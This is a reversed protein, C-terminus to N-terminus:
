QTFASIVSVQRATETKFDWVRFTVKLALIPTQLPTPNSLTTGPTAWGTYDYTTDNNAAWTDFVIPFSTGAPSPPFNPNNGPTATAPYGSFFLSYVSSLDMFDTQATVAVQNAVIAQAPILLQVQFSIVDTLAVDSATPNGSADVLKAYFNNTAAAPFLGAYATDTTALPLPVSSLPLGATLTGANTFGAMAFRRTPMTLDAPSCFHYYATPTANNTECSVTEYGTPTTGPVAIATPATYVPALSWPVLQRRYLTYLNTATGGSTTAPITGSQLMFWAVEAWQSNFTEYTDTGASVSGSVFDQFRLDGQSGVLLSTASSAGSPPYSRYFAQRVNGLSAKNVTFHLWCNGVTASGGNMTSPIGDLDSGESTTAGQQGIRFFGSTPPGGGAPAPPPGTNWFNLDSLVKNGSTTLTSTMHTASLDDSMLLAATRLRGNMDGIAKFDRFVKVGAFFAESLISMIFMTLAVAVLLEVLTFGKRRMVPNGRGPLRKCTFM